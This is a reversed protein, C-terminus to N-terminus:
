GDDHVEAAARDANAAQEILVIALKRADGPTLIIGGVGREHQQILVADAGCAVEVHGYYTPVSRESM